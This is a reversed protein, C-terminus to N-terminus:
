EILMYFMLEATEGTGVTVIGPKGGNEVVVEYEGPAVHLIEQQALEFLAQPEPNSRSRLRRLRLPVNYIPCETGECQHQPPIGGLYFVHVIITASLAEEVATPGTPGTAAAVPPTATGTRKHGGTEAKSKYKAKATKQCKERKSRSKDEECKRLANALKQAHQSSGPRGGASYGMGLTGGIGFIAVITGIVVRRV